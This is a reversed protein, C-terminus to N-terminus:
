GWGFLQTWVGDQYGVGLDQFGCHLINARHGPSDMWARVVEEATRQGAAINEGSPDAYGQAKARDWPSRGDLSTHDFYDREVMDESHLRAAATLREDVALPGCGAAAREANTLEVVAAAGGPEAGTEDRDAGTGEPDEADDPASADTGVDVQASDDSSSGGRSSSGPSPRGSAADDGAPVGAGDQLDHAGRAGTDPLREAVVAAAPSADGGQLAAVVPGLPGAQDPRVEGSATAAGLGVSPGLLVVAAVGATVAGATGPSFRQHRAGEGSRRRAARFAGPSVAGARHRPTRRTAM